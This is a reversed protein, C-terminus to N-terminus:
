DVCVQIKLASGKNIESKIEFKSNIESLRRKINSIGYGTNKSNNIDFGKGNDSIVILFYHENIKNLTFCVETAESHKEINCIWEKISKFLEIAKENPLDIEEEPLEVIVKGKFVKKFSAM